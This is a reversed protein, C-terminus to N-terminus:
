NWRYYIGVDVRIFNMLRADDQATEVQNILTNDVNRNITLIHRINNNHLHKRKHSCAGKIFLKKHKLKFEEITM